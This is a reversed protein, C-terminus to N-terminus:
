RRGRLSRLMSGLPQTRQEHAPRLGDMLARIRGVV